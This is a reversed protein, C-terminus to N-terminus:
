CIRRNRRGDYESTRKGLVEVIGSELRQQEDQQVEGQRHHCRWFWGDYPNNKIYLVRRGCEESCHVDEPHVPGVQLHVEM